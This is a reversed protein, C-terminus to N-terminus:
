QQTAKTIVLRLEEAMRRHTELGPHYHCGPHDNTTQMEYTEINTGGAARFRSVAERINGRALVLDSGDLLPGITCLVFAQPYKTRILTLLKLYKSIFHPDAPDSKTSYDNTGLNIVVAQIPSEGPFAWVEQEEQPLALHALDVMTPAVEGAYNSAVGRGSWAITTLEAKLMRALIAGYSLYHNETEASFGCETNQGENGYGCSISDGYIEIRRKPPSPAPLVQGGLARVSVLSSVGFLAEGQRLLQVTHEGPSLDQAVLVEHEGEDFFFDQGPNGDILRAFRIRPGRHVVLLGHGRFRIEAGSGSWALRVAGDKCASSRGIIRVLGQQVLSCFDVNTKPRMVIVKTSNAALRNVAKSNVQNISAQKPQHACGLFYIASFLALWPRPM